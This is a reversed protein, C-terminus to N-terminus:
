NKENFIEDTNGLLLKIYRTRRTNFNNFHKSQKLDKFISKHLRQWGARTRYKVFNIMAWSTKKSGNKGNHWIIDMMVIVENLLMKNFWNVGDKDTMNHYLAKQYKNFQNAFMKDCDAETMVENPEIFRIFKGNNDLISINGYCITYLKIPEYHIIKRGWRKKIITKYQKVGNIHQYECDDVMKNAKLDFIKKINGNKDKKCLNYSKYAVGENRKILEKTYKYIFAMENKNFVIGKIEVVEKNINECLGNRNQLFLIFFIFIVRKIM